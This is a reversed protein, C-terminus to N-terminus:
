SRAKQCKAEQGLIVQGPRTYLTLGIPSEQDKIVVHEQIDKMVDTSLPYFVDSVLNDLM